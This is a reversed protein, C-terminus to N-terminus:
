KIIAFRRVIKDGTRDEIVAFYVGSAVNEGSSNKIDWGWQSGSVDEKKFVLEGSLNFISIKVCGNLNEFWVKTHSKSKWPNPRVIVGGIELGIPNGVAYISLHSIRCEVRDQGPYVTQYGRVLRWGDGTLRYIRYALDDEENLPDPDSYPLILTLEKMPQTETGGPSLALIEYVSGSLIYRVPLIAQKTGVTTKNITLTVSGSFAGRPIHLSFALSAVVDYEKDPEIVKYSDVVRIGDSYVYGGWDAINKARVRYYYLGKARGSVSYWKDSPSIADSLINWTGGTGVREDLRYWLIGGADARPLSVRYNGDTDADADGSIEDEMSDEEADELPVGSLVPTTGLVAIPISAIIITEQGCTITAYNIVDGKDILVQGGFTIDKSGLSPISQISWVMINDSFSDATCYKGVPIYSATFFGFSAGVESLEKLWGGSVTLEFRKNYTINVRASSKNIESLLANITPYNSNNIPKSIYEGFNTKIKIFGDVCNDFQSWGNANNINVDIEKASRVLSVSFGYPLADKVAVNNAGADGDNKVKITYLLHAGYGVSTNPVVDKTSNILNPGSDITLTACPIQKQLSEKSDIYAQNAIVTGNTLPSAVKASFTVSGKTATGLNGLNWKINHFIKDYVGNSSITLTDVILNPNLAEIIRLNSASASGKNEYAITYVVIDGPRARNPLRGAPPENTETGLLNPAIVRSSDSATQSLYTYSSDKYTITATSAIYSQNPTSLNIYVSFKLTATGKPKVEGIDVGSFLPSGGNIDNLPAGDKWTSNKIYTTNTPLEAMLRTYYASVDGTNEYSITFDLTQGCGIESKSPNLRFMSSLDAEYGILNKVENSKYSPSEKSEIRAHCTVTDGRAGKALASFKLFSGDGSNITSLNWTITGKEKSYVGSGITSTDVELKPDIYATVVVGTAKEKGINNYSIIYDIRGSPLVPTSERPSNSISLSFNPAAGFIWAGDESTIYVRGNAIAPSSQSKGIQYSWEKGGNAANLGYIYGDASAVFVLNDAIAVQGKIPGDTPFSRWKETSATGIIELCYVRGNDAGFYIANNYIAPTPNIPSKADYVAFGTAGTGTSEIRYIKGDRSGAYVIGRDITLSSYLRAGNPLKCKWKLNGTFKDIAYINGSDDGLYVSNNAIAPASYLSGEIENYAWLIKGDDCCLAYVGNSLAFYAIGSSVAPSLCPSNGIQKEWLNTTGRYCYVLGNDAGFYARDDVLAPASSINATTITEVVGGKLGDWRFLGRGQVGVYLKNKGVVPSYARGIKESHWIHGLSYSTFFESPNYGSHSLDFGTMPWENSTSNYPTTIPNSIFATTSTDQNGITVKVEVKGEILASEKVFATFNVKGNQGPTLTGINWLISNTITGGASPTISGLYPGEDVKIQVNSATANGKNEYSIEYTAFWGLSLSGVPKSTITGFLVPKSTIYAYVTSSAPTSIENSKMTVMNAIVTGDDIKENIRLQLTITQPTTKSFEPIIWKIYSVGPMPNGMWITGDKSYLTLSVGSAINALYTTNTSPLYDVIEVYTANKLLSRALITYSLTGGPRTDGAPSILTKKIQLIPKSSIYTTVSATKEIQTATFTARNTIRTGDEVNDVVVKFGVTGLSDKPLNGLEWRIYTPSPIQNPYWEQGNYSYKITSGTGYVSNAICSVSGPLLDTIVAGTVGNKSVLYSLTYTLTAGPAVYDGTINCSKSFSVIPDTKVVIIVPNSDTESVGDAKIKASNTIVTGDSLNDDTKITLTCTGFSTASVKGISWKIHTIPSYHPNDDYTLGGNHSYTVSGQPEASLYTTNTPIQDIIEVNSAEACSNRWSLAYTIIGGTTATGKNASKILTFVPKSSIKTECSSTSGIAADATITGYNTIISGDALNPIPKVSFTLSGQTNKELSAIRWRIYRVPSTEFDKYTIGDNSFQCDKASGQIYTVSGSLKDTILVNEAKKRSNIYALTYTITQGQNIAVSGTKQLTLTPSGTVLVQCSAVKTEANTATITAINTLVTDADLDSILRVSITASGLEDKIMSTRTIKIHTIPSYAFENYSLGGDHSYTLNSNNAKAEILTFGSPLSDILEINTTDKCLLKYNLTYTLTDGFTVTTTSATKTISLVPNSNIETKATATAVNSETDTMTAINEIITQNDLQSAVQLVLSVSGSSGKNLDGINWRIYQVPDVKFQSFNTGDTGYEISTGGQAEIYTATT